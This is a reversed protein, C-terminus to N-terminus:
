QDLEDGISDQGFDSLFSPCSFFADIGGLIHAAHHRQATRTLKSGWSHLVKPLAGNFSLAFPGKMLSCGSPIMVLLSALEKLVANLHSGRLGFHDMALSIFRM